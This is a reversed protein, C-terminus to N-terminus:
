EYETNKIVIPYAKIHTMGVLQHERLLANMRWPMGLCIIIVYHVEKRRM